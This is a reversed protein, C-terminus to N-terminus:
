RANRRVVSRVRMAAESSVMRLNIPTFKTSPNTVTTIATRAYAPAPLPRLSAMVERNHARSQDRGGIQLRILGSKARRRLTPTANPPAHSKPRKRRAPQDSPTKKKPLHRTADTLVEADPTNATDCLFSDIASILFIVCIVCIEPPQSYLAGARYLSRSMSNNYRFRHTPFHSWKLKRCSKLNQRRPLHPPPYCGCLALSSRTSLRRDAPESNEEAVAEHKRRASPLVRLRRNAQASSRVNGSICRPAPRCADFNTYWHIEFCRFERETRQEIEALGHWSILRPARGTFRATADACDAHMKRYRRKWAKGARWCRLLQVMLLSVRDPTEQGRGCAIASCPM